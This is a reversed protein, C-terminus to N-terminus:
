GDMAALAGEALARVRARLEPTLPLAAGGLGVVFRAVQEVASTEVEVDLGGDQFAEVIAAITEAQSRRRMWAFPLASASSAVLRGPAQRSRNETTVETFATRVEPLPTQVELIGPKVEPFAAQVELIGPKVEPFAGQVETFGAKGEHFTAHVSTNAAKM